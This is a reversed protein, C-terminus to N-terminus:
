AKGLLQVHRQAYRSSVWTLYLTHSQNVTLSSCSMIRGFVFTFHVIKTYQHPRERFNSHSIVAIIIIKNISLTKELSFPFPYNFMM